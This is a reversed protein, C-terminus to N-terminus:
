IRIAIAWIHNPTYLIFDIVIIAQYEVTTAVDAIMIANQKSGDATKTKFLFFDLCWKNACQKSATEYAKLSDLPETCDTIQKM